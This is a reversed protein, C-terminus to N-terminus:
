ARSLALEPSPPAVAPRVEDQLDVFWALASTPDALILTTEEGSDEVVVLHDPYGSV